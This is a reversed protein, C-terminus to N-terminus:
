KREILGVSMTYGVSSGKPGIARVKIVHLEEDENNVDELVAFATGKKLM